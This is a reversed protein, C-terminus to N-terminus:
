YSRLDVGDKDEDQQNGVIKVVVKNPICVLMEGPNDIWGDHVDIQEPCTAESVQAKSGLVQVVNYDDEDVQVKYEILDEQPLDFRKVIEGDVEIVVEGGAEKPAVFQYVLSGVAIFLVVVILIKDGIKM